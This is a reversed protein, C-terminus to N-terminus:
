WIGEDRGEHEELVQHDCVLPPREPSDVFRPERKPRPRSDDVKHFFIYQTYNRLSYTWVIRSLKEHPRSFGDPMTHVAVARSPGLRECVDFLTDGFNAALAQVLNWDESRFIEKRRLPVWAESSSIVEAVFPISTWEAGFYPVFGIWYAHREVKSIPAACSRETM